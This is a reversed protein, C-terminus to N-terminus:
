VGYAFTKQELHNRILNNLTKSLNAAKPNPDINPNPNPLSEHYYYQSSKKIPFMKVSYRFYILNYNYLTAWLFPAHAYQTYNSWIDVSTLLKQILKNLFLVQEMIKLNMLHYKQANCMREFHGGHANVCETLRLCWKAVAKDIIRKEFKDLKMLLCENLCDM